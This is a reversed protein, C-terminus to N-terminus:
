QTPTVELDYLNYIEMSENMADFFHKNMARYDEETGEFKFSVQYERVGDNRNAKVVKRM